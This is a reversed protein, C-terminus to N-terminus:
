SERSARAKMLARAPTWLYAFRPSGTTGSLAALALNRRSLVDAPFRPSLAIRLWERMQVRTAQRLEREAHWGDSWQHRGTVTTQVPCPEHGPYSQWPVQGLGFPLLEMIRNYLRHQLFPDVPSSLVAAVFRGDFFPLVLDLRHLHLTEYHWVLHRRQDNLMFFLHANRGPEVQPRTALDESLGTMPLDAWTRHARNFSRPSLAFRNAALIARATAALDGRRATAVINDDIYVHGLGVSGGDGSWALRDHDAPMATRRPDVDWANVARNRRAGFDGDGGQEDFELHDTGAAEAAMRGYILDQSGPPAINLTSVATGAQRLMAVILRSDMGGSLFARVRKQGQLRATVADSFAQLVQGPLEHPQVTSPPLRTWDWYAAVSPEAGRLDLMEGAGLVRIAAHSTRDALPAGFVSAEIIGRLDEDKPIAAIRSLVWHNTSVYVQRGVQAWYLSRVGLKDTCAIARGEGDWAAAAYTGEAMVMLETGEALLRSRLGRVAEPRPTAGAPPRLVPDGAVVVGGAADAELSPGPWIGSDWVAIACRPTAISRVEGAPSLATELVSAVRPDLTTGPASWALVFATM